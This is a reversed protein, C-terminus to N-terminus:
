SMICVGVTSLEIYDSLPNQILSTNHCWILREREWTYAKWVQYYVIGPQEGIVEALDYNHGSFIAQASACVCVCVNKAPYWITKVWSEICILLYSKVWQYM